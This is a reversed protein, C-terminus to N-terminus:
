RFAEVLTDGCRRCRYTYRGSAINSHRRPGLQHTDCRCSYFFRAMQRLPIGELNYNSRVSDDAGFLQMVSKWEAGHPRVNRLDYMQHVLYHAVEHPVTAALCDEYYKAFIWPNYRIEQASGRVRFMGSSRGKLDFHIPIDPFHRDFLGRARDIYHRTTAMVELQQSRDIPSVSEM